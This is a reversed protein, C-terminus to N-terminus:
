NLIHGSFINWCVSRDSNQYMTAGGSGYDSAIWVESGAALSAIAYASVSAVHHHDDKWERSIERGDVVIRFSMFKVNNVCVSYTFAYTGDIKATFKGTSSDYVDGQNLLVDSFVLKENSKPSKNTLVKAAFAYM